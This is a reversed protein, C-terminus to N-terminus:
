SQTSPATPPPHVCRAEADKRLIRRNIRNMRNMRYEISDLSDSYFLCPFVSLGVLGFFFGSGGATFLYAFSVKTEPTHQVMATHQPPLPPPKSVVSKYISCDTAGRLASSPPYASITTSPEASPRPIVSSVTVPVSGM